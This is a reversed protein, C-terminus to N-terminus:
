MWGLEEYRRREFERVLRIIGEALEEALHAPIVVSGKRGDHLRAVIRVGNEALEVGITGPPQESM